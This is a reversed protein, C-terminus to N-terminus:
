TGSKSDMRKSDEALRIDDKRTARMTEEASKIGCGKDYAESPYKTLCTKWMKLVSLLSNCNREETRRLLEGM